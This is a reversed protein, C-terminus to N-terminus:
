SRKRFAWPKPSKPSDLPLAANTSSNSCPISALAVEAAVEWQGSVHGLWKLDFGLGNWACVMFGREQMDLLYGLVEAAKEPTMTPSPNGAADQSYWVIEEGGHIATAAVSIDFPGYKDVDENEGREFVTAIEIDFSLLKM